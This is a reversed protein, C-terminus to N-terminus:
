SCSFIFRITETRDRITSLILKLRSKPLAFNSIVQIEFLERCQPKGSFHKQEYREIKHGFKWRLLKTLWPSQATMRAVLMEYAPKIAKSYADDLVTFTPAINATIDIDKLKTYPFRDMTENFVSWEHGGGIPSKGPAPIRFLDCILLYGGDNLLRCAKEFAEELRIFLLSESFFLLDYRKDTQLDEFRCEFLTSRDGLTERVIEMLPGNPSVCDVRYQKEILQRATNGTGCGVDLITEVNPPLHSLLFETYQQQAQPLNQIEYPMGNSWYGYHLDKMNLCYRGFIFGFALGFERSPLTFPKKM